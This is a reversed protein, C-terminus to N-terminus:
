NPKGGGHLADRYARPSQGFLERFQRSFQAQDCFGFHYAITSLRQQGPMQLMDRAAHLRCVRIYQAVTTGTENFLEHLYRKSIGCAAAVTEPSLDPDSLHQRIAKQARLLHAARTVSPVSESCDAQRDLSLALLEILQRGLIDGAVLDAAMAHARRVTEAFLGGLGDRGDFVSACFRDPQYVRASLAERSVKMVFLDNRADYSFRYPEDGRELLFGGMGCTVTRGLQHFQVPTSCPITVLYHGAEGTRIQDTFREYQAAETRLRSLSVPGLMRREVRGDFRTEDRYSLHLPFYTDSIVASWYAAREGLAVGATSYCELSM